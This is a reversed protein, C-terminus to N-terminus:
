AHEGDQYAIAAPRHWVGGGDALGNLLMRRTIAQNMLCRSGRERHGDPGAQFARTYCDGACSWYCFCDRCQQRREAMLSHLHQRAPEHIHIDDQDYR